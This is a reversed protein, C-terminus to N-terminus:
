CGTAANTAGFDVETGPNEITHRVADRIREVDPVARGSATAGSGWTQDFGILRIAATEVRPTLRILDPIVETTLDTDLNAEIADLLGGLRGFLTLLDAQAAM